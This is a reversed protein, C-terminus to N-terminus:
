LAEAEHLPRAAVDVRICGNSMGPRHTLGWLAILAAEARGDDKKRRWIESYAPMLESARLRSGDKGPPVALAKRWILPAAYSVPIELAAIVGDIQGAVRGFAFMSTVGQGPMAGVREIVAYTPRMRRIIDVLSRLDAQRKSKGGRDTVFCPVDRVILEGGSTLLALAGSLGPDIGLIRHDPM